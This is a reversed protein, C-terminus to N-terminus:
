VTCTLGPTLDTAPRGSALTWLAIMNPMCSRIILHQADVPREGDLDVKDWSHIAVRFPSLRSKPSQEPPKGINGRGAFRQAFHQDIGRTSVVPTFPNQRWIEGRM